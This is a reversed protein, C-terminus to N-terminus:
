SDQGARLLGAGPLAFVCLWNLLNGRHILCKIQVGNTFLSATTAKHQLATVPGFLEM